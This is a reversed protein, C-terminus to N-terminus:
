LKIKNQEFLVLTKRLDNVLISITMGTFYLNVSIKQTPEANLQIDQLLKMM